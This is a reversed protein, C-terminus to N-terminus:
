NVQISFRFIDAKLITYAVEHNILIENQLYKAALESANEIDLTLQFKNSYLYILLSVDLFDDDSKTYNIAPDLLNAKMRLYKILIENALRM